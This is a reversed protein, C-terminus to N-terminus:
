LLPDAITSVREHTMRALLRDSMAETVLRLLHPCIRPRLSPFVPPTNAPIRQPNKELRARRLHDCITRRTVSAM